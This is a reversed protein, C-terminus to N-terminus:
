LTVVYARWPCLGLSTFNVTSFIEHDIEVFLINGSGTPISDTVEQDGTPRAGSHALPAM